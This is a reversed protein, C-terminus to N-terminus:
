KHTIASTIVNGETDTVIATSEDTVQLMEHACLFIETTGNSHQKYIAGIRLSETSQRVLKLIGSLISARDVALAHVEDSTRCTSFSDEFLLYSEDDARKIVTTPSSVFNLALHELDSAMGQLRVSWSNIETNM